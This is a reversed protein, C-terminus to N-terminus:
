THKERCKFKNNNEKDVETKLSSTKSMVQNHNPSASLELWKLLERTLDNGEILGL